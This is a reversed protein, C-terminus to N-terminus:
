GFVRKWFVILSAVLSRLDWYTGRKAWFIGSASTCRGAVALGGTVGDVFGALLRVPTLDAVTVRGGAVKKGAVGQEIRDVLKDSGGKGWQRTVAGCKGDGGFSGDCAVSGRGELGGICFLSGMADNNMGFCRTRECAGEGDPFLLRVSCARHGHSATM